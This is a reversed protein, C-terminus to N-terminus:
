AVDTSRARAVEISARGLFAAVDNMRYDEFRRKISDPWNERDRWARAFGEHLRQTDRPDSSLQEWLSQALTNWRHVLQPVAPSAPGDPIAAAIDRCVAIWPETPWEEYFRRARAWVEDSFYRRMSEAARETDLVDALRGLAGEGAPTHRLSEEVLAIARDARRLREQEFALAERRSRLFAILADPGADLVSRMRTLAIGMRKLALISRLRELDQTTYVRHGSSTRTPTLLGLRDYHRLAKITVGSLEAFARIRLRRSLTASTDAPPRMSMVTLTSGGRPAPDLSFHM